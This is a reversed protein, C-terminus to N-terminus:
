FIYVLNLAAKTPGVYNHHGNGTKKGCNQCEFVDYKLYVYGVGIEFELNWSRNLPLAYGYSIGAGLGWGQYRHDKLKSFDSGLFSIKTGLNGMNYQGGIGHFGVFHKAFADCFWYRGEPQVFWHKWKHGKITWDNFDASFDISWKKAVKYEAGINVNAGADYLLNTKVSVNNRGQITVISSIFILIFFIKKLSM